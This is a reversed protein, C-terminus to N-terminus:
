LSIVRAPVGAVVTYDAVDTVVVSNAGVIAGRGLYVGGIVKAGSFVTVENSVTPFKEDKDAGLTVQQYISTGARIVVDRGIVIGNAHPISIGGDLSALSSIECGSIVQSFYGLTRALISGFVPLKQLRIRLRYHLLIHVGLHLFLISLATSIKSNSWGNAVLDQKVENFLSSKNGM